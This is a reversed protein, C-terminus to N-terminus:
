NSNEKENFKQIFIKNAEIIENINNKDLKQNYFKIFGLKKPVTLKIIGNLTKKDKLMVLNLKKLDIKRLNKYDENNLLKISLSMILESIKKPIKFKKSCLITEVCMGITVAKGHPISHNCLVELAHGYSHGFNMSRRIDFEYEDEEVVAKKVLLSHKIINILNKKNFKLAGDIDKQFKKVFYNGGTLHLRLAEGLGSLLDKKSLTDLYNINILVKSPASFLAALNKAKGFNIGVKGGVCSDTMGLFTTPVYVWSLGRKYVACSYGALDQIIGGGIAYIKNNKSVNNKVFFNLIKNITKLDKEKEQANIKIIKKNRIIGRSFYIKFIKKDIIIISEKDNIKKKFDFNKNSIKVEYNKPFSKVTFNNKLFNNTNVSLKTNQIQFNKIM